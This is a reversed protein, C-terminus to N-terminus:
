GTARGRGLCIFYKLSSECHVSMLGDECKRFNYTFNWHHARVEKIRIM